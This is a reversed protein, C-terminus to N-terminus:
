LQGKRLIYFGYGNYQYPNFENVDLRLFNVAAVAKIGPEWQNRLYIDEPMAPPKEFAGILS